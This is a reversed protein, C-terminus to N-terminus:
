DQELLMDRVSARWSMVRRLGRAAWGEEEAPPEQPLPPASPVRETPATGDEADMFANTVPVFGPWAEFRDPPPFPGFTQHLAAQQPAQYWRAMDDHVEHLKNAQDTGDTKPEPAAAVIHRGFCGSVVFIMVFSAVVCVVVTLALGIGRRDNKEETPRASPATSPAATPDATPTGTFWDPTPITVTEYLVSLIQPDATVTIAVGLDTAAEVIADNFGGDNIHQTLNTKVLDFLAAATSEDFGYAEAVVTIVFAVELNNISLRRRRSSAETISTLKIMDARTYESCAALGEKLVLQKDESALVDAATDSSAMAVSSSIELALETTTPAITPAHKTTPAPIPVDSPKSTPAPIPVQSPKATTPAATSPAATTPAATSPAATTPIPSPAPTPDPIPSRSPTVTPMATTPRPTPTTTPAPSPLPSPAPSVTPQSSPLAPLTYIYAAGTQDDKYYAGVAVSDGDTAVSMGFRDGAAADSATLKIETHTDWGDTTRFVYVAGSDTGADDDCYAGVVVTSGGIAVSLGFDDGSSADSATLKAVQGYTAGGDTTRFVYASGTYSDKGRAGIVITAGDIAVDFGFIDGAAADSATLKAVQGYTAGGDSTRFVYVAGGTGAFRAGVVITDGDIAVSVGFSDGAAADSATLKAVQGYTAGGDDTRFIYASGSDTGGDDDDDAGVVITGGDLAVSRGFWDGTAVDAATLKAVQSYTAGGDSPGEASCVRVRGEGPDGTPDGSTSWFGSGACPDGAEYTYCGRGVGYAGSFGFNCGGESLGAAIVAARCEGDTEPSVCTSTRFVYASGGTGAGIAGVVITGNAIAVPYGFWDGVAADSATLKVVQGYSAGGDSTRFVYAAGTQGDKRYAGVVVTGGDMAVRHGFRDDAAADAATLKAVEQYAALRVCCLLSICISRWM